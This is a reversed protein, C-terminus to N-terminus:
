TKLYEKHGKRESRKKPSGSHTHQDAEHDGVPRQGVLENMKMRKRETRCVLYDFNAPEKM